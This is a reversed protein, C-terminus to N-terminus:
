KRHKKMAAAARNKCPKCSKPPEMGIMSYWYRSFEFTKKCVECKADSKTEIERSCDSCYILKGSKRITIFSSRTLVFIGGCLSCSIEVDKDAISPALMASGAPLTSIKSPKDTFAHLGLARCVSNCEHTVFFAAIGDEGLDGEGFASAGGTSHIQPDTLIYNVGQLDVVM